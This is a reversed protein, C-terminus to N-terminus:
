NTLAPTEKLRWDTHIGALKALHQDCLTTFVAQEGPTSRVRICGRNLLRSKEFPAKTEEDYIGGKPDSVRYYFVTGARDGGLKWINSCQVRHPSAARMKVGQTVSGEVAGSGEILFAAQARL